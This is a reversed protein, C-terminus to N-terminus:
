EMEDCAEAAINFSVKTGRGSESEFELTTDHILAIREAIALGLGAGNMRRSRSKDVMYFAEKIRLLENEEMGRGNDAVEVVYKDGLRRGFVEVIGGTRAREGDVLAKIANDALNMVLTKFLDPEIKIFAEDARLSVSADWKAAMPMLAKGIDDFVDIAPLSILSFKNKELVILEMLKLSLAELRMGESLIFGAANAAEEDRLRGQYLMDAYGIVSTLPTKIEHAFSAMFDEKQQASRKLESISEDVTEAMRNFGLALEGTEDRSFVPCREDYKGEAIRAASVTLRRIPRAIFYSLVALAAAAAFVSVSYILIYKRAFAESEQYISDINKSIVFAVSVDNVTLGSTVKIYRGTDTVFISYMAAIDSDNNKGEAISMDPLTSYLMEGEADFLAVGCPSVDAAQRALITLNERTLEGSESISQMGTQLTYAIHGYESLAVGKERSLSNDFSEKILMGGTVAMAASLVALSSIFIKTFLRM